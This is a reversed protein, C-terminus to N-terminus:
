RLHRTAREDRPCISERRESQSQLLPHERDPAGGSDRSGARRGALRHWAFRRRPCGAAGFIKCRARLNGRRAHAARHWRSLDRAARRHCYQLAARPRCLAGNPAAPIKVRKRGAPTQPWTLIDSNIRVAGIGFKPVVGAMTLLSYLGDDRTTPTLIESRVGSAGRGEGLERYADEVAELCDPMSLASAVDGNSLLLM